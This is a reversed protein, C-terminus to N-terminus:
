GKRDVDNSQVVARPIWCPCDKGDNPSSCCPTPLRREYDHLAVPFDIAGKWLCRAWRNKNIRGAKDIAAAIDWLGCTKCCREEPLPEAPLALPGCWEAGGTVPVNKVDHGSFMLMGDGHRVVHVVCPVHYVGRIWYWGPETPVKREWRM